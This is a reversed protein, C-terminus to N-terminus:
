NTLPWQALDEVIRSLRAVSHQNQNLASHMKINTGQM